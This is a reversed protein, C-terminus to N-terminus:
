TLIRRFYEFNRWVFSQTQYEGRGLLIGVGPGISGRSYSFRNEGDIRYGLQLCNISSGSLLNSAPIRKGMHDEQNEQKRLGHPGDCMFVSPIGYHPFEKTEWFNKGECLAIKDELTMQCPM